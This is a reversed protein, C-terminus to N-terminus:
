RAESGNSTVRLGDVHAGVPAATETATTEEVKNEDPNM